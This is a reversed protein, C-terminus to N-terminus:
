LFVEEPNPKQHLGIDPLFREAAIRGPWQSKIAGIGISCYAGTSDDILHVRLPDGAYFHAASM